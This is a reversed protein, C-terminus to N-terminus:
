RGKALESQILTNQNNLRSINLNDNWFENHSHNLRSTILSFFFLFFDKYIYRDVNIDFM